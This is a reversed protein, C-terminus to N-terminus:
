WARFVDHGVEFFHFFGALVFALTGTAPTLLGDRHALRSLFAYLPLYLVLATILGPCYTGFAATAGAHFLTNYFIGPTLLLAFFLFGLVRNPFASVLAVVLTGLGLGGLHLVLYDHRTFAPSAYHQAWSPFQPLEELIHLAFAPPFLWIAQSFRLRKALTVFLAPDM